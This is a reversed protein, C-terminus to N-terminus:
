RIARTRILRWLTAIKAARSRPRGIDAGSHRGIKWIAYDLGGEFTLASKAIRAVALAKGFVRRRAWAREAARAEAAPLMPLAAAAVADYYDANARYIEAAKGPPESRPEARYSEAFARTWVDAAGADRPLLPASSALMMRAANALAAVVRSETEADRAWVIWCPQAFRGWIYSSFGAPGARREFAGLTMLAYKAPAVRGDEPPLYHVNPQDLAGLLRPLVSQYAPGIRDALVYFDLIRDAVAGDRLSSGYMLVAAVGAGHRARLAEAHRRAEAAAPEPAPMRAREAILAELPGSAM